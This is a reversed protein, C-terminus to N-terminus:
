NSNNTTASRHELWSALEPDQARRAADLPTLGDYGIWNIDAGHELLVAASDPQGGHCAGWFSSTINETTPQETALLTKVREVLGLAAAEFLNTRAGREVLLRAASWEGFATADALPTGGAIVAGPANIDAGADLLANLAAVDGSSAAWHLPTAQHEGISPTNPDAGAQVLTNITAAVNPFHGPWDTAIHLLTRGGRRILRNTALEPHTTLVHHLTAQDGSHIATIVTLLDPNDILADLIWQDPPTGTTGHPTAYRRCQLAYSERDLAGPEVDLGNVRLTPSGLFRQTRADDDNDVRILTVPANIENETLLQRLHPLFADHNPCGDFYLLEVLPPPDLETIDAILGGRLTLRVTLERPYADAYPSEIQLTATLVDGPGHIDAIHLTVGAGILGAYHDGAQARNTCQNGGHEGGWHIDDTLLATFANRTRTALAARLASNLEAAPDDTGSTEIM